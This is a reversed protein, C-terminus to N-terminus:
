PSSLEGAALTLWYCWGYEVTLEEDGFSVVLSTGGSVSTLDYLRVGHHTRHHPVHLRRLHGSVVAAGPQGM